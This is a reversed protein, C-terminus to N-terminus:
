LRFALLLPKLDKRAIWNSHVFYDCVLVYQQQGLWGFMKFHMQMIVCVLTTLSREVANKVM